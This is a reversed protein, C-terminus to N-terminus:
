FPIDDDPYQGPPEGGYDAGSDFARPDEDGSGANAPRQGGGRGGCLIVNTAVIETRYRKVGERDEYSTTRLSGEVHIRDGKGLIRGLAEARKGWLTISHWETQEQRQGRDKDFWSHTTALRLRLVTRGTGVVRLEPDAGLNGLLLVKNLGDSM